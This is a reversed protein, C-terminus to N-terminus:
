KPWINIFATYRSSAHRAREILKHSMIDYAIKVRLWSGNASEDSVFGEYYASLRDQPMGHIYRLDTTNHRQFRMVAKACIKM